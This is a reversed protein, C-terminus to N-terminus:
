AETEEEDDLWLFRQRLFAVHFVAPALGRYSPGLVDVATWIATVAWGVPGIAVAVARALVLSAAFRVGVSLVQRTAAHAIQLVVQYVILGALRLGIQAALVSFPLLWMKSGSTAEFRRRTTGLQDEAAKVAEEREQPTMAEWVRDMMDRLLKEEMDLIGMGAPVKVRMVDCVDRLVEAYAPGGGRWTNRLANGGARTIYDAIVEPIITLDHRARHYREDAKIRVDWSRDLAEVILALDQHSARRLVPLLDGSRLEDQRM